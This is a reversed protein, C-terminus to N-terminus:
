HQQRARCMGLVVETGGFLSETKRQAGDIQVRFGRHLDVAIRAHRAGQHAGFVIEAHVLVIEFRFELHHQADNIAPM